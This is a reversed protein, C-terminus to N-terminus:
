SAPHQVPEPSSRATIDRACESNNMFLAHYARCCIVRVKIRYKPDWGAFGDFVSSSPRSPFLYPSCSLHADHSQMRPFLLVCLPLCSAPSLDSM